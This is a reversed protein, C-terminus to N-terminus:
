IRTVAGCYECTIETQGRLVPATFSASCNSCSTPANQIRDLEAQDIEIARDSAYDGKRARGVMKIWDDAVPAALEFRTEHFPANSDFTFVLVEFVDGDEEENEEKRVGTINQVPVEVKLEYEGVRDEWLLRQDTLYLVGNEPEVGGAWVAETAAVGSETALLQFSATALADLMWGVWAFHAALGEVEDTYEDFQALVTNEAALATAEASALASRFQLYTPRAATLNASMGALKSMTANLSNAETSLLNAQTNLTTEANTKVRDWQSVLVVIEGELDSEIAYGRARLDALDRELSRVDNELAELAGRANQLMLEDQLENLETQADAIDAHTIDGTLDKFSLASGTSREDEIRGTRVREILAAWDKSDQGDLHFAVEGAKPFQVELFDQHGFLGKNVAKVSRLDAVTEDMLVEQVLEASTTIFLVKKTAVKEKREFVLRKTTLYLIGEPDNDGVQDWRAKVAMVFNEGTAAQFRAESLQNLAWHITTLKGSLQYVKSQIDSYQSRINSRVSGVDRLLSNVATETTRLPATALSPNNLRSNLQRVQGDLPLLRTNFAAEQHDAEAVAKQYVQEWQEMAALALDDLEKQYVYGKDRASELLDVAHTLDKDLGNLEEILDDFSSQSQLNTLSGQLSSVSTSIQPHASAVNLTFTAATVAATAGGIASRAVVGARAIPPRAAGRTVPQQSRAPTAPRAPATRAVQAPRVSPLPRAVPRNIMGRQVRAPAPRSPMVTRPPTAPRVAPRVRNATDRQNIRAERRAVARNMMTSNTAARQLPTRTVPNPAPRAAPRAPPTPRRINSKLNSM